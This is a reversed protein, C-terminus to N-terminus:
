GDERYAILALCAFTAFGPPAWAAIFAPVAGSGGMGSSIQIVFYLGIAAGAAIAVLPSSGGLRALRLCALAGILSMAIFLVPLTTLAHWRMRYRQANIGGRETREIYDPLDWFSITTPSSFRDMLVAQKLDTPMSLSPLPMPSEDPLYEIVDTLQWFGRELRAEKADIRRAFTFVPDGGGPNLAREEQLMKVNTLVTGTENIEGAHIITQTFTDGDRLWVGRDSVAIDTGAGSEGLLQSRVDEFQASLTSGIPSLVLMTFAGVLGALLMTPTLFRWASLGSARIVPLEARVSMQRFTLMTSILLAFPLTHEILQPLKLLSLYVAVEVGIQTRTGITRLQEVTDVLLIAGIIVGLVVLLSRVSLGFIYRQIRSLGIM